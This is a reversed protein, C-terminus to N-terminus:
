PKLHRDLFDISAKIAQAQAEGQFGHGAGEMRILEVKAGVKKMAQEVRESQAIPVLTDNTGHIMLTPASNRTIFSLPSADRYADPAEDRKKGIFGEVIPAGAASLPETMFDSPGFFDVVCQVRSSYGSLEDNGKERTDRSGLFLVLHGGASGGHSGIRNQDVHYQQAQHRLWRVARQVDDLQAPHPNAPALRYNVAIAVYGRAALQLALSGYGAKDGGRWGGGHVLVVGPRVGDAGKPRFLDLKQREHTSGYALDKQVEVEYKKEQALALSLALAASLAVVFWRRTM